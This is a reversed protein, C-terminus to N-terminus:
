TNVLIGIDEETFGMRRLTNAQGDRGSIKNYGYYPVADAVAVLKDYATKLEPVKDCFTKFYSPKGNREGFYFLTALFVKKPSSTLYTWVKNAVIIVTSGIVLVTGALQLGPVAFICGAVSLLGGSVQMAGSIIKEYDRGAPDFYAEWLAIGGSIIGLVSAVRGFNKGWFDLAEAWDLAPDLSSVTQVLGLAVTTSGAIVDIAPKVGKDTTTMASYLSFLALITMGADWKAGKYLKNSLKEGWDAYVKKGAANKLDKELDGLEASTIGTCKQLGGMLDKRLGSLKSGEAKLRPLVHCTVSAVVAMGLSQPGPLNGVAVSALSVGVGVVSLVADLATSADITRTEGTAKATGISKLSAILGPLVEDVVYSDVLAEVARLMVLQIYGHLSVDQSRKANLLPSRVTVVRDAEELVRKVGTALAAGKFRDRLRKGISDVNKHANWGLTGAPNLVMHKSVLDHFKELELHLPHIEFDKAHVDHERKGWVAETQSVLWRLVLLSYVEATTDQKLKECVKLNKQFAALDDAFPELEEAFFKELWEPAAVVTSPTVAGGATTQAAVVVGVSGKVVPFPVWVKTATPIIMTSANDNLHLKAARDLPLAAVLQDVMKRRFACNAVSDFLYQETLQDGKGRRAPKNAEACVAKLTPYATGPGCAWEEWTYHRVEDTVPISLKMKDRVLDAFATASAAAAFEARLPKSAQWVADLTTGYRTAVNSVYSDLESYTYSATKLSAPSVSPRPMESM